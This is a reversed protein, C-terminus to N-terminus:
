LAAPIRPPAKGGNIAPGIIAACPVTKKPLTSAASQKRLKQQQIARRSVRCRDSLSHNSRRQTVVYPLFDFRDQRALFVISTSRSRAIAPEELRHQPYAAGVARPAVQRRFETAPVGHVHTEGSPPRLPRQCHTVSAIASSVSTSCIRISQVTTRACWSEALANFFAAWLRESTGSIAQAGRQM